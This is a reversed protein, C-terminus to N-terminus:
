HVPTEPDNCGVQAAETVAVFRGADVRIADALADAIEGLDEVGEPDLAWTTPCSQPAPTPHTIASSAGSRTSLSTTNDTPCGPTRGVSSCRSFDQYM